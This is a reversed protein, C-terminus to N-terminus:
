HEPFDVNEDKYPVAKSAGGGMVWELNRSPWLLFYEASEIAIVNQKEVETCM